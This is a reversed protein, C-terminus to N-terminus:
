KRDTSVRCALPAGRIFPQWDLWAPARAALGPSVPGAVPHAVVARPEVLDLAAALEPGAARFNLPVFVAGALHTALLTILFGPDNRGSWCVRDGPRTGQERLSTALATALRWVTGADLVQDADDRIVPEDPRDQARRALASVLSMDTPSMM